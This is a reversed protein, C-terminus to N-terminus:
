KMTAPWASGSDKASRPKNYRSACFYSSIGPCNLSFDGAKWGLDIPAVVM